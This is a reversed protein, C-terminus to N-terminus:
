NEEDSVGALDGRGLAVLAEKVFPKLWDFVEDFTNFGDIILYAYVVALRKKKKTSKMGIVEKRM